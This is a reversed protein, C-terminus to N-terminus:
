GSSRTDASSFVIVNAPDPEEVGAGESAWRELESRPYEDGWREGNLWTAAHPCFQLETFQIGRVGEMIESHTAIKLARQYALRAAKKAVKRPYKSWFEDFGM